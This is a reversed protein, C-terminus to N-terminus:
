KSGVTSADDQGAAASPVAYLAVGVGMLAVALSVMAAVAARQLWTDLRSQPM